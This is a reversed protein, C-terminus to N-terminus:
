IKIQIILERFVQHRLVGCIHLWKWGLLVTAWIELTNVRPRRLIRIDRQNLVHVEEDRLHDLLVVERIGDLLAIFDNVILRPDLGQFISLPIM